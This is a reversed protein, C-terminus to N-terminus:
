RGCITKFDCMACTEADDTRRFPVDPDVMEDLLASLRQRVERAFAANEPCDPFPKVSLSPVNYVANEM